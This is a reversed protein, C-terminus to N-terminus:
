LGLPTRGTKLPPNSTTSSSLFYCVQTHTRAHTRLIVPPKYTLSFEKPHPLAPPLPVRSHVIDTFCHFDSAGILHQFNSGLLHSTFAPLYPFGQLLIGYAHQQILVGLSPVRFQSALSLAVFLGPFHSASTCHVPPPSSRRFCGDPFAELAPRSLCGSPPGLALWFRVFCFVGSYGEELFCLYLWSTLQPLTHSLFPLHFCFAESDRCCLM